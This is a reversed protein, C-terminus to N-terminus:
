VEFVKYGNLEVFKEIGGTSRERTQIPLGLKDISEFLQISDKLGIFKIGMEVACVKVGTEKECEKELEVVQRELAMIKNLYFIAKENKKGQM